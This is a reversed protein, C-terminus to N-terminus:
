DPAGSSPWVYRGHPVVALGDEFLWLRYSRDPQLAPLEITMAGTADTAYPGLDLTERTMEDVLRVTLTRDAFPSGDDTRVTADMSTPEGAVVQSTALDLRYCAACRDAVSRDGHLVSVVHALGSGDLTLTTSASGAEDTTVDLADLAGRNAAWTFPTDTVPLGFLDRAHLTATVTGPAPFAFDVDASVIRVPDSVAVGGETRVEFRQEEVPVYAPGGVKAAMFRGYDMGFLEAAHVFSLTIEGDSWAVISRDRVPTGGYLVRSLDISDGFGSGSLTITTAEGGIEARQWSWVVIPGGAADLIPAPSTPASPTLTLAPADVTVGAEVDIVVTGSAFGEGSASLAYRGPPLGHLLYEGSQVTLATRNTGHARVTTGEHDDRGEKVAAGRVRGLAEATLRLDVPDGTLDITRMAGVGSGEVLLLYRGQPLSLDFYGREDTVTGDIAQSSIAPATQTGLQTTALAVADATVATIAAGSLAQGDDTVVQGTVNGHFAPADSCGSLALALAAVLLSLTALRISRDM